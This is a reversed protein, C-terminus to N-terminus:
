TDTLEIKPLDKVKIPEANELLTNVKDAFTM